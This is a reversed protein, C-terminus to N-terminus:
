THLVSVSSLNEVMKVLTVTEQYSAKKLGFTYVNKRIEGLFCVKHSSM